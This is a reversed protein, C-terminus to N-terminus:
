KAPETLSGRAPLPPLLVRLDGAGGRSSARGAGSGVSRGGPHAATAPVAHSISSAERDSSRFRRSSIVKSSIRRCFLGLCLSGKMPSIAFAMLAAPLASALPGINPIFTLLAAIIALTGPLPVRLLALGGAIILGIATMSILRSLLWFRLTRIAGGLCAEITARVSSPLVRQLGRLYFEPEAALYISAMVVLLLCALTSVVISLAGKIGSAAYSVWGSLQRDDPTNDLIWRGWGTNGLSRISDNRPKLFMWRSSGFQQALEPGRLSIGLPLALGLGALLAAFAFTRPNRPM